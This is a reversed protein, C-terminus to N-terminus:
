KIWFWSPQLDVWTIYWTQINHGRTYGDVAPIVGYRRKVTYDHGAIIGGPRVKPVWCIIDLMVSDFDHLADIYVFDLSNDSIQQVAELSLLRIIETNPYKKLKDLAVQYHVEQRDARYDSCQFWPDICLLKLGANFKLLIESYEARHVGIEAGHKYGLEAFLQALGIRTGRGGVGSFPPNGTCSIKFKERILRHPNM